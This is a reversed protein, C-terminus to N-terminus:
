RSGCWNFSSDVFSKLVKRLSFDSMMRKGCSNSVHYQIITAPKMKPNKTTCKTKLQRKGSTSWSNSGIIITSVAIDNKVNNLKCSGSRSRKKAFSESM